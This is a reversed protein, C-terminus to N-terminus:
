NFYKSFIKKFDKKFKHSGRNLNILYIKDAEPMYSNIIRYFYSQSKNTNENSKSEEEKQLEKIKEIKKNDKYEKKLLKKMGYKRMKNENDRFINLKLEECKKKCKKSNSLSMECNYKCKVYKKCAKLQNKKDSFSLLCKDKNKSYKMKPSMMSFNEKYMFNHKKITFIILGLIIITYILIYTSPEM